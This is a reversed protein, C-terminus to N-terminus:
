LEGLMAELMIQVCPDPEFDRAERFTIGPAIEILLWPRGLRRRYAYEISYSSQGGTPTRPWEASLSIRHGRGSEPLVRLWHFAQAPTVGDSQEEWKLRTLSRFLWGDSLMRGWRIESSAGWGDSSYWEAAETLRLEWRGIPVLYRFRIRGFGQLGGGLKAGLDTSLRVRWTEKAILRVGVDPHSSDVTDDLPNSGRPDGTETLNDLVLQLRHETKPLDLRSRFRTLLSEGEARDWRFGIGFRLHSGRADDEIREDGFFRDVRDMLQLFQKSISAQIRDASDLSPLEQASPAVAEPAPPPM